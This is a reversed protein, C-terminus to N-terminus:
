LPRAEALVRERLYTSLSGETVVDARRGLLSEIDLQLGVLDYLSREPEFDVLLDIDSESTESGRAVSGFVRVNRAGHRTAAALIETKRSRLTNLIGM